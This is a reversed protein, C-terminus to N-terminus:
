LELESENTQSYFVDHNLNIDVGDCCKDAQRESSFPGVRKVVKNTEYEVIEVYFMKIEREEAKTHNCYEDVSSPLTSLKGLGGFQYANYINM